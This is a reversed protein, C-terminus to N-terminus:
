TSGEDQREPIKFGLYTGGSIGLLGLLTPSFDPMALRNWVSYVFLVGLVLTWVFMQFRHFSYGNKDTLVDKLFNETKLPVAPKNSDIVAASLATGAGIGMLGLVSGTVSEWSGTVLWIYVFAVVILIFWFAMQTRALSYPRLASSDNEPPPGPDRLLGSKIAAYRFLILIPLLLLTCGVFWARRIRILAFEMKGVDSEVPYAGSPGVSLETPRIFAGTDFPPAGLLDAWAEDSEASRQLHFQLVGEKPIPAGSEPILGVIERGDLFLSIEQERCKAVPRSDESRCKAHNILRQLNAVRVRIIDGLGARVGLGNSDPNHRLNEVAVVRVGDLTPVEPATDRSM